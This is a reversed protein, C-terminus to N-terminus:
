ALVIGAYRRLTAKIQAEHRRSTSCASVIAVGAPGTVRLHGQATLTVEAAPCARGIRQALQRIATGHGRASM